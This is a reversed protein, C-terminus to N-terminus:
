AKHLQLSIRRGGAAPNTEAKDHSILHFPTCWQAPKARFQRGKTNSSTESSVLSPSLIQLLVQPKEALEPNFLELETCIAHFDYLPDPSTGDIIHVLMRSRQCHRLFEHGLGSGTHAGELLGSCSPNPKVCQNM